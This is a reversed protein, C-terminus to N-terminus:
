NASVFYSVSYTYSSADGHTVAVRWTRPLAAQTTQTVAGGTAGPCLSYITQGIATIATPASNLMAYNGSIPDKWQFQLQLGGTGSAASVNLFASACKGNYNTQDSSNTTTTRAASALLTGEQNNRVREWTSSSGLMYAHNVVQLAASATGQADSDTTQPIVSGLSGTIPFLAPRDPLASPQIRVALTGSTYSPARVRVDTYGNTAVRYAYPAGGTNHTVATTLQSLTAAGGAYVQEALANIWTTGGDPSVEILATVVFTGSLIIRAEPFGVVSASVTGGAVPTGATAQAATISGTTATPAAGRVYTGNTDGRARDWTTGNYVMQRDTTRLTNATNSQADANGTTADIAVPTGSAAGYVNANTAGGSSSTLDGTGVCSMLSTAMEARRYCRTGDRLDDQSYGPPLTPTATAQGLPGAVGIPASLRSDPAAWVALLIAALVV